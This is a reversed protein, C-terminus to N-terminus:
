VSKINGSSSGGNWIANFPVQNGSGVVGVGDTFRVPRIESLTIGIPRSSKDVVEAVADGLGKGDRIRDGGLGGAQDM